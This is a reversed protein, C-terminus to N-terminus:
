ETTGRTKKTRRPAHSQLCGVDEHPASTQAMGEYRPPSRQYQIIASSAATLTQGISYTQGAKDAMFLCDEIGNFYAELDILGDYPARFSEDNESLQAPTVSGYTRYLYQLIDRTSRTAFDTVRDRLDKIYPAYVANVLLNKLANDAAQFFRIERTHEEHERKQHSIQADTACPALIPHM